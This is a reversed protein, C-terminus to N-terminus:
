LPTGSPLISKTPDSGVRSPHSTAPLSGGARSTAGAGASGRHTGAGAAALTRLDEARFTRRLQIQNQGQDVNSAKLRRTQSGPITVPRLAAERVQKVAFGARIASVTLWIDDSRPCCALFRPGLRKLFDLFAPPYIAGGVGTIFNLHSPEADSTLAWANYPGLEGGAIVMRRARHCHIKTPDSRYGDTLDSLWNQPYLSDDDATVLPREFREQSELYPYYKSHPGLERARRIELGGAQLRQLSRPLRAHPDGDTLWLLIRSPKLSGGCISEIAYHVSEIRSPLTTLSVVPGAPDLLSGRSLEIRTRIWWLRARRRAWRRRMRWRSGRARVAARLRARPTWSRHLRHPHNTRLSEDRQSCLEAYAQGPVEDSCTLLAPLDYFGLPDLRHSTILLRGSRDIEVGKIGGERTDYRGDLFTEDDLMRISREPDCVGSWETGSRRYVHLFQSAADAVLLDGDRTFGLGHPCVSGRLVAAPGVADALREENRYVLVEGDVHNSVAIWARDRSVAIGDPIRLRFDRLPPQHAIGVGDGLRVRHASLFNWFNNCVLVRWSDDALRYAAASGPSQVKAFVTGRGSITAIPQLDLESRHPSPAPLRLIDVNGARNCVLLHEDDLFSLGHPQAFSPSRLVTCDPIWVKPLAETADISISFLFVQNSAFAALALRRSDPSLRVDETRGIRAILRRM